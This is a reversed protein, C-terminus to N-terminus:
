ISSTKSKVTEIGRMVESALASGGPSDIRIVVAKIKPDRGAVRLARRMKDSGVGSSGGFLSAEGEGDVIVGQAPILGNAPKDLVGEQVPKTLKTCEHDM